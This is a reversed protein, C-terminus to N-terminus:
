MIAFIQSAKITHAKPIEHGILAYLDNLDFDISPFLRSKLTM